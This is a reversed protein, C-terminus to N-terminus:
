KDLKKNPKKPPYKVELYVANVKLRLELFRKTDKNNKLIIVETQEKNVEIDNKNELHTKLTTFEQLNRCLEAREDETMSHWFALLGTLDMGGSMGM